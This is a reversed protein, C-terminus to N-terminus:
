GITLFCVFLIATTILGSQPPRRQGRRISQLLVEAEGPWSGQLCSVRWVVVRQLGCSWGPWRCTHDSVCKWEPHKWLALPTISVMQLVQCRGKKNTTILREFHGKSRALGFPNSFYVWDIMQALWNTNNKRVFLLCFFATYTDAGPERWPSLLFGPRPRQPLTPGRPVQRHGPRDAKLPQHRGLGLVEEGSWRDREWWPPDGRCPDPFVLDLQSWWYLKM